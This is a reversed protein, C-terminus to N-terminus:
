KIRSRFNLDSKVNGPILIQRAGGLRDKYPAIRGEFVVSGKKLVFSDLHKMSNRDPFALQYRALARSDIKDPSVFRGFQQVDNDDNHWRYVTEDNKVVRRKISGLEFSQITEVRDKRLVSKDRLFQSLEQTGRYDLGKGLNKASTAGEGLVQKARSYDPEGVAKRATKVLESEFKPLYENPAHIWRKAQRYASGSGLVVGVSSALREDFSLAKGTLFDRGYIMEYLDAVDGLIPAFGIGLRAMAEYILKELDTLLTPDKTAPNIGIRQVDKREPALYYESLDLKQPQNTPNYLTVTQSSGRDAAM